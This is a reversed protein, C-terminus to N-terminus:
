KNKEQKIQKELVIHTRKYGFNNLVKQWGPRAILELMLCNENKAFEEIDKILHQWKNRQRGTMMYIHCIKGLPKQIIETIVLGFYKDLTTKQKKDWLIWVQFKGEKATQLVFASDSLQGSYLLSKRIDKEILGWVKDLEKTPIRVLEM